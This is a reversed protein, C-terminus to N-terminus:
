HPARIVGNSDHGSLNARVPYFAIRASEEVSCGEARFVDHILEELRDAKIPVLDEGPTVAIL